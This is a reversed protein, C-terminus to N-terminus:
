TEDSEPGGDPGDGEDGENHAPATETQEAPPTADAAPATSQAARGNGREAPPKPPRPNIRICDVVNGTPDNTTTPFITIWQGIWQEIEGTGTINTLTKCNTKNLALPKKKGAFYCLPKKTKRNKEGTLQGAVIRSIQVDCAKGQLDEAYIYEREDMLKRWHTM